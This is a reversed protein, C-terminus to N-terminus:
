RFRHLQRALYHLRRIFNVHKLFKAARKKRGEQGEETISPVIFPTLFDCIHAFGNKQSEEEQLDFDFVTTRDSFSLFQQEQLKYLYSEPILEEGTRAREQIRKMCLEVTGDMYARFHPIEDYNLSVLLLENAHVIRLIEALQDETFREKSLEMFMKCSSPSREFVIIKNKVKPDSLVKVFRKEM